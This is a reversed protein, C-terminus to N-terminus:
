QAMAMALRMLEAQRRVGTKGFVLRLQTKVTAMSVGRLQSHEQPSRGACLSRVLETESPTLGYLTAMLAAPELPPAGERSLLGIAAALHGQPMASPPPVLRVVLGSGPPGSLRVMAGTSRSFERRACASLVAGLEINGAPSDARLVGGRALPVATQALLQEAAPNALLIRRDGALVLVATATRDLAMSALAAENLRTRVLLARRLHTQYQTFRDLDQAHFSPRGFPRYVNMSMLPLGDGDIGSSVVAGLAHGIEMPKLYDSFYRSRSLERDDVLGLTTYTFGTGMSGHRRLLALYWLDVEQCERLYDQVKEPELGAQIWFHNRDSASLTPTFVHASQANFAQALRGFLDGWPREDCTAEYIERVLESDDAM